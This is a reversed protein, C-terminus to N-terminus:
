LVLLVDEVVKDRRGLVEDFLAIGRALLESNRTARIATQQHTSTHSLARIQVGNCQWCHAHQIHQAVVEEGDTVAPNHLIARRCHLLLEVVKYLVRWQVVQTLTHLVGGREYSRAVVVISNYRRVRELKCRLQLMAVLAVVRHKDADVGVCTM